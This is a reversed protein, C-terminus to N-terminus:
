DAMELDVGYPKLLTSIKSKIEKLGNESTSEARISIVAQTNSSRLLWWGNEEKVRIGDIESIKKGSAKVKARIEEVIRFKDEERVEIRYESSSFSKPLTDIYESPLGSKKAFFNLLRVASYIADDYGFYKDAFFIHGSMEGALAAGTEAMKNKIFSHGTKWMIPEGGMEIVKDFFSESTKVDVIIKAGKNNELVDEAFIMMMQDGFITRGEGDVVGIRDADGDFAIGIHCDYKKILDRLQKLNKEESPDPHHAPFTGDIADNIVFHQGALKQTLLKTIEGGAGNGPDWAIRMNSLNEQAKEEVAALLINIYDNKIDFVELSGGANEEISNNEIMAGLETIEEAFLPAKAYMMKFGNHNPPNHSGTIMIGGDLKLSRVAFYLMPTPGIGIDTVKAGASIMGKVLQKHLTPSSLRGDRGVAVKPNKNSTKKIIKSAYAKGIYFADQEFLSEGVIGRIDYARLISPKLKHSNKM